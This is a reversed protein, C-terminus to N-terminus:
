AAGGWRTTGCVRCTLTYRVTAQDAESHWDADRRCQPCAATWSATDPPIVPKPRNVLYTWWPDASM